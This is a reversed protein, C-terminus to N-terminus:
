RRRDEILRSHPVGLAYRHAHNTHNGGGKVGMRPMGCPRLKM